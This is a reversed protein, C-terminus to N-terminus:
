KIECIKRKVVKLDYFEIWILSDTKIPVEKVGRRSGCVDHIQFIVCKLVYILACYNFLVNKECKCNFLYQVAILYIFYSKCLNKCLETIGLYNRKWIWFITQAVKFSSMDNLYYKFINHHLIWIIATAIIWGEQVIFNCDKIQKQQTRM